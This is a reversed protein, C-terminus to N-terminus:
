DFAVVLSNLAQRPKSGSGDAMHPPMHPDHVDLVHGRKGLDLNTMDEDTKGVCM